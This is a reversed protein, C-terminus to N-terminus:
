SYSGVSYEAVDVLEATRMAVRRSLGLETAINRINKGQNFYKKVQRGIKKTVGLDKLTESELITM